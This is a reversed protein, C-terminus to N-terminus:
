ILKIEKVNLIKKLKKSTYYEISYENRVYEVYKLEDNIHNLKIYLTNNKIYVEELNSHEQLIESTTNYLRQKNLNTIYTYGICFFIICIGTVIYKMKIKM